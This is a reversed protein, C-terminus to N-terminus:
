LSSRMRFPASRNVFAMPCFCCPLSSEKKVMLEEAGLRLASSSFFGAFFPFFFHSLQRQPVYGRIMMMDDTYLRTDIDDM